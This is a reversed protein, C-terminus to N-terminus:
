PYVQCLIGDSCLLTVGNEYSHLFEPDLILRWVAHFLECWCHAFLTPTPSVDHSQLEETFSDPLQIANQKLQTNSYFFGHVPPIYGIVQALQASPKCHTYKTQNGIYAYIPWAKTQRFQALHTSDSWFMYVVIISPCAPHVQSSLLDREAKLFADSTYLDGWVRESPFDQYPPQWHEEYGHWHIERTPLDEQITEVM